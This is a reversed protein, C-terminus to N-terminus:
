GQGPRSDPSRRQLFWGIGAMGAGVVLLGVAGVILLWQERWWDSGTTGLQDPTGATSAAPVPPAIEEEAVLLPLALVAQALTDVPEDILAAETIGIRTELAQELTTGLDAPLSDSTTVSLSASDNSESSEPTYTVAAGLEIWRECTGDATRETVDDGVGFNSGLSDTDVDADYSVEDGHTAYLRWGYCIKQTQYARALQEVLAASDADSPTEVRLDSDGSCTALGFLTAAGIGAAAVWVKARELLDTM